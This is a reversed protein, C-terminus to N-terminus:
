KSLPSPLPPCLLSLPHPPLALLAPSFPSPFLAPSTCAPLLLQGWLSPLLLSESFLAWSPSDREGTKSCGPVFLSVAVSVEPRRATKELPPYM